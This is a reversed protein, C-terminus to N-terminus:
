DDAPVPAPGAINGGLSRDSEVVLEIDGDDITVTFSDVVARYQKHHHGGDTDICQEIELLDLEALENLRRFATPRSMDTVAAVEDGSRPRDVVAEFAARTYKDGLQELVATPNEHRWNGDRARGAPTDTQTDHDMRTRDPEISM